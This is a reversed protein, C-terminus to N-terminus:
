LGDLINMMEMSSALWDSVIEFRSSLRGVGYAFIYLRGVAIDFNHDQWCLTDSPCLLTKEDM